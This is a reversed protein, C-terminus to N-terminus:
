PKPNLTHRVPKITEEYQEIARGEGSAPNILVLFCKTDTETKEEGGQTKAEEQHLPHLTAHYIDLPSARDISQQQINKRRYALSCAPWAWYVAICFALFLFIAAVGDVVLALWESDYLSPVEEEYLRLLHVLPLVLLMVAVAVAAAGHGLLFPKISPVWRLLSDRGSPFIM